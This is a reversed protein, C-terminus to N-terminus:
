IHACRNWESAFLTHTHPTNRLVHRSICHCNGSLYLSEEVQSYKDEYTRFNVPVGFLRRCEWAHRGQGSLSTNRSQNAFRSHDTRGQIEGWGSRCIVVTCGEVLGMELLVSKTIGCCVSGVGMDTWVYRGGDEFFQGGGSDDEVVFGLDRIGMERCM